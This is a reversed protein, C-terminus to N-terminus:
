EVVSAMRYYREETELGKRAITGPVKAIRAAHYVSTAGAPGARESEVITSTQFQSKGATGLRCASCCNKDPASM